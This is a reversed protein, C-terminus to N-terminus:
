LLWVLPRQMIQQAILQIAKDPVPVTPNYFSQILGTKVFNKFNFVRCRINRWSHIQDGISWITNTKTCHTKRSEDNGDWESYANIMIVNHFLSVMHRYMKPWCQSLYHRTAQVLISKDDFQNQTVLVLTVPLPWFVLWNFQTSHYVNLIVDVDRLSGQTLWPILMGM